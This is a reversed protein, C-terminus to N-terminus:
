SLLYHSKYWNITEVLGEKLDVRPQFGTVEKLLITNAKIKTEPIEGKRMPLYNILSKSNTLQIILKTLDNLVIEDKGVEFTKGEAKKWNRVIELCANAADITHVLDVTQKGNGYINIPENKLAEVIVHPIYKRYNVEHFLLQGPGYVNFFKVIVAELQFNERYMHIFEECTNKTISYSNRWVNPKSAFLLKSNLKKAVDLVNITGLVNIKVSNYADDILEHTGLLGAFHFIFECESAAQFLKEKDLIDGRVFLSHNNLNKPTIIDYVVVEYYKSLCEVLTKGIFGAGGTVLVKM